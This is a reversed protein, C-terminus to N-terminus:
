ELTASIPSLLEALSARVKDVILPRIERLFSAPPLDPFPALPLPQRAGLRLLAGYEPSFFFLMETKNPTFPPPPLDPPLLGVARGGDVRERRVGDRARRWFVGSSLFVKGIPLLAIGLGGPCRFPFFLPIPGGFRRAM